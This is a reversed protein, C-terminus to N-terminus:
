IYYNLKKTLLEAAQSVNINYIYFCNNNEKCEHEKDKCATDSLRQVLKLYCVAPNVSFFVCSTSTNVCM